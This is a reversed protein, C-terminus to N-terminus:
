WISLELFITRLQLASIKKQIISVQVTVCQSMLNTLIEVTTM